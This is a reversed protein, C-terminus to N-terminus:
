SCALQAEAVAVGDIGLIDNIGWSKPPRLRLWTGTGCGVDLLSEPLNSKFLENLAATAGDMTHRNQAHDYDIVMEVGDAKQGMILEVLNLTKTLFCGLFKPLRFRRLQGM